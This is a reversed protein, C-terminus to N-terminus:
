DLTSDIADSVYTSPGPVFTTLASVADRFSTAIYLLDGDTVAFDQVVFLTEPDTMDFRYVTPVTSGRYASTDYGLRALVTKPTQRYLFVGTRDAVRNALGGAAGFVDALTADPRDLVITSNGGAAGLITIRNEPTEVEIVDDPRVFINLRPNELISEMSATRTEGGRTLRVNLNDSRNVPGGATAIMDLLRLDTQNISYNGPAGIKGVLTVRASQRDAIDVIVSPRILQESLQRTLATEFEQVTSGAAPVRGVPPVHIRGDSQVEQPVITTQSIPAISANAFDVFGAESTSVIAVSLIDGRGIVVDSPAGKGIFPSFDVRRMEASVASAIGRDTEVLVFGRDSFATRSRLVADSGSVVANVSPGVGGCGGMVVCIAGALVARAQM